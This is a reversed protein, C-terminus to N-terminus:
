PRRPTENHAGCLYASARPVGASHEAEDRDALLQRRKNPQGSRVPYSPRPLVEATRCFLRIRLQAVSPRLILHWEQRLGATGVSGM